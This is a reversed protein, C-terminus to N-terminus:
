SSEINNLPQEDSEFNLTQPALKELCEKVMEKCKEKNAECQTIAFAVTKEVKCENDEKKM